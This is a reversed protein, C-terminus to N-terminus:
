GGFYCVAFFYLNNNQLVTDTGKSTFIDECELWVYYPLVSIYNLFFFVKIFKKGPISANNQM